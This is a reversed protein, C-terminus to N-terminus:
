MVNQKVTVHRLFLLWRKWEGYRVSKWTKKFIEWLLGWRRKELTNAKSCDKLIESTPFIRLHPCGVIAAAQRTTLGGEREWEKMHKHYTMDGRVAPRWAGRDMPNELCSYQLPNDNGEGPSRGSGPILALYGSDGANTWNLETAWDHGVRRLGMSQLLDPRGTWWWSGSNVWVWTQQTPSAM